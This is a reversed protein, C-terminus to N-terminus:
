VWIFVLSHFDYIIVEIVHTSNMYIFQICHLLPWLPEKCFGSPKSAADNLCLIMLQLHHIMLQLYHMMHQLHLMTQQLHHRLQQLHHRMQQLHHMMQRLLRMCPHLLSIWYRDLFFYLISIYSLCGFNLCICEWGFFVKQLLVFQKTM